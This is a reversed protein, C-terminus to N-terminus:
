RIRSLSWLFGLTTLGTFLLNIGVLVGLVWAAQTPWMALILVALILSLIGSVLIWGWMPLPKLKLSGYIKAIGDFVFFCALLLTLTAIGSAPYVLFMFGLFLYLITSIISATRNPMGGTQMTRIGLAIAGLVFLWGLFYDLTLSFLTPLALAFIGLLTFVIGEALFFNKFRKILTVLPRNEPDIEFM